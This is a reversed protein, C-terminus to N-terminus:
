DEEKWCDTLSCDSLLRLVSQSCESFVRHASLVTSLFFELMLIM